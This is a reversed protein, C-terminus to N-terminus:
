CGLETADCWYCALPYPFLIITIVVLLLKVQNVWDGFIGIKAAEGKEWWLIEGQELVM